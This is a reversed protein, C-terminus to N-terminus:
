AEVTVCLVPEASSPVNLLPGPTTPAKDILRRAVEASREHSKQDIYELNGGLGSPDYAPKYEDRRDRAKTAQADHWSAMEELAQRRAAMVLELAKGLSIRDNMLRDFESPSTVRRFKPAKDEGKELLFYLDDSWTFVHVPVTETEVISWVDLAEKAFQDMSTAYSDPESPKMFGNAGEPLPDACTWSGNPHIKVEFMGHDVVWNFRVIDGIDIRVPPQDTADDSFLWKAGNPHTSVWDEPRARPKPCIDDIFISPVWRRLSTDDAM